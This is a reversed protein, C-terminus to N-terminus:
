ESRKAPVQEPSLLGLVRRYTEHYHHLAPENRGYILHKLLGSSVAPQASEAVGFDEAGVVIALDRLIRQAKEPDRETKPEADLYVSQYILSRAPSGGDPFIRYVDIHGRSILLQTNPFLYYAITSNPRLEWETEPVERLQDITRSAFVMRHHDGFTEYHQVNSYYLPDLSLKHLIEFHYTEGFTDNALKWNMERKLLRTDLGFMNELKWGAIEPGLEGLYEDIDIASGSGARVWVIGYKEVVDLSILGYSARDFDGFSHQRPVGVLSGELDYSWAHFPCSLQRAVGHPENVLRTGRHRCANLFARVRNDHGRVVFIPVGACDQAVFSGPGPLDASLAIVIPLSGFITERERRLVDESTYVHVDNTDPKDTRSTTGSDIHDLLKHLIEIQKEHDM